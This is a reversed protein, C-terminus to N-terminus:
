RAPRFTFNRLAYEDKQGFVGEDIIFGFKGAAHDRGPDLWEDVTVWQGGSRVEHVIKDASVTIRFEGTAPLTVKALDKTKGNIVSHRSFQNREVRFLAYNRQDTFGLMWQLRKGKRLQIMFSFVGATRTPKYTVYKGGRRIMWGGDSIWANPNDFESMGMPQAAGSQQKAASLQRLLVPMDQASGPTVQLTIVTSAHGPASATILYEGPPLSAPNNMPKSSSEPEGTKRYTLTADPPTVNIRITGNPQQLALQDEPVDFTEGPQFNHTLTRSKATGRRLEISREGPAVQTSFSGDPGIAGSLLSDVYVQAGAAGRLRLTALRVVAKMQFRVTTEEGPKVEVNQPPTTEFGDKAVSIKYTGPKLGVLRTAGKVTRLHHTYNNIRVTANDEGAVVLISGKGADSKGLLFAFVAPGGNTQMQLNRVAAGDDFALSHVGPAIGQFSAGEVPIARAPQGDIGARANALTSYVVARDGYACVVVAISDASTAPASLSPQTRSAVMLPIKTESNAALLRLELNGDGLQDLVYEGPAGPTMDRNDLIARTLQVESWVRVLPKFVQLTMDLAAPKGKVVNLTVTAPEYGELEATAQYQGPPLALNLNSVGKQERNIFIKAGPPTTRIDVQVAATSADRGRLWLTVVSAAIIVAAGGLVAWRAGHSVAKPPAIPPIKPMGKPTSPTPSPPQPPPPPTAAGPAASMLPQAPTPPAAPPAPPVVPPAPQAAPTQPAQAPPQVPAPPAPASPPHPAPPTPQRPTAPTAAAPTRPTAPAPASKTPAPPPAPRTVTAESARQLTAFLQNLRVDNPFRGLGQQVIVIAGEVDGSAQLKRAQATCWSVFEEREKDARMARINIALTHGPDISLIENLVKTAAEPDTEALERARAGLGDVYAVRVSPNQPEKAFAQRLLGLSEEQKGEAAKEQAATLLAMAESHSARRTNVMKSLEELEPDGPFEALAQESASAARDLQNAELAKDIKSVWQVRAEARAQKERRARVRDIEYDLGPYSPHITRLLQWQELAEVFREEDENLRARSVVGAVLDRKDRALKLARQFHSEDPHQEAAAQLIAVRRDLDPEAEVRRDTEAILASLNQRQREEVDFQLAQFLAHGPYKALYQRCIALSEAFDGDAMLQRAREYSGKIADQESRVQNYFKQLTGVREADTDPAQQDLSMWKELNTLAATVEGRQWAQRADQVLRSKEVRLGEFERERRDIEALLAMANPEGPRLELLSQIASRAHAFANNELHSKALQAWEEIKRARRQKEMDNKLAQVDRNEPDLDLAEQVKRLALPFEEEQMFRRASELLQQVVIRRRAQEVQRRLMTIDQEACGESELENLIETAVDYEGREFAKSAREIRPQIKAPDFLSLAEGRCAKLVTEGFERATAFRHWPQKALAKHTARALNLPIAPNLDAANPPMEHLIAHTLEADSGGQFPRRGTFTEYAVVGLAYIDSAVTAPKMQLLEPAMYSLTGRISTQTKAEVHAIGFDIIKVSDDELVYVNSPKLDRHILGRDHAAQLGRAVQAILNSAREVTLRESSSRILDALTCGSLLPMVFYPRHEGEVVMEGIDYIEAINPHTIGAQTGWERYFLDKAAQSEVDLLTKLAVERRMLTDYARYVVGMGGRGLVERLEYRSKGPVSPNM